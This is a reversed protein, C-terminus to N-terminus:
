VENFKELVAPDTIEIANIFVGMRNFRDMEEQFKTVAELFTEAMFNCFQWNPDYTSRYAYTALIM